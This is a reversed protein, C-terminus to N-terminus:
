YSNECIIPYLEKLLCHAPSEAGLRPHAALTFAFAMAQWKQIELMILSAVIHNNENQALDLATQNQKNKIFPNARTELLTTSIPLSGKIAAWHLATNGNLDQLNPNAGHRLLLEVKILHNSKVTENLPLQGSCDPQNPNAGYRLLLAAITSYGRGTLANTLPLSPNAGNSLLVRIGTTNRDKVATILDQDLKSQEETTRAAQTAGTALIISLIILIQKKM